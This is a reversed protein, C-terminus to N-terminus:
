VEPRPAAAGTGSSSASADEGDLNKGIKDTSPNKEKEPEKTGSKDKLAKERLKSAMEAGVAYAESIDEIDEFADFDEEKESGFDYSPSTPRIIEGRLMRSIISSLSEYGTPDVLDPSKCVTFDEYDGKDFQTRFRNKTM